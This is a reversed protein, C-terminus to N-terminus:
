QAADEDQGVKDGVLLAMLDAYIQGPFVTFHEDDLQPRQADDHEVVDVHDLLREHRFPLDDRIVAAAVEAGGGVGVVEEALSFADGVGVVALLEPLSLRKRKSRYFTSKM